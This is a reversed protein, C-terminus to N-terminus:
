FLVGDSNADSSIYLENGVYGFGISTIRVVLPLLM